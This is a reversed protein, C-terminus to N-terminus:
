GDGGRQWTAWGRGGATLSQSKKAAAAACAMGQRGHKLPAQERQTWLSFLLAAPRRLCATPQQRQLALPWLNTGGRVGIGAHASCDGPRKGVVGTAASYVSGERVCGGSKPFSKKFPINRGPTPVLMCRDSLYSAARRGPAAEASGRAAGDERQEDQAGTELGEVAPLSGNM